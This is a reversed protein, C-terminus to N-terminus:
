ALEEPEGDPDLEDDPDLVGPLGALYVRHADVLALRFNESLRVARPTLRWGVLSTAVLVAASGHTAAPVAAAWDALALNQLARFVQNRSTVGCGGRNVADVVRALPQPTMPDAILAEIVRLLIQQSVTTYDPGSKRGNPLSM